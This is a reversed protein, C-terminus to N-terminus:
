GVPGLRKGEKLKFWLLFAWLAFRSVMGANSMKSLRFSVM